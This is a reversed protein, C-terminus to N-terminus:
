PCSLHFVQAVPTRAVQCNQKQAGWFKSALQSSSIGLSLLDGGHARGILGTDLCWSM